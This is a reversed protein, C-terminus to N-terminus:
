EFFGKVCLVATIAQLAAGAMAAVMWWSRQQETTSRAAAYILFNLGFWQLFLQLIPSM